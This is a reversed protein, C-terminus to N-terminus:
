FDIKVPGVAQGVLPVAAANRDCVEAPIATESPLKHMNFRITRIGAAELRQDRAKSSGVPKSGRNLEILSLLIM